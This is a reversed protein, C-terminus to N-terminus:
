CGYAKTTSEILLVFSSMIITKKLIYYFRLKTLLNVYTINFDPLIDYFSCSMTAQVHFGLWKQPQLLITVFKCITQAIYYSRLHFVLIDCSLFVHFVCLIWLLFTMTRM